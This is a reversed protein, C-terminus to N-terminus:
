AGVAERGYAALQAECAHEIANSAPIIDIDAKGGLIMRLSDAQVRAGADALREAAGNVASLSYEDMIDIAKIFEKPQTAFFREYVNRLMADAQKLCLSGKIAGPKRLLTHRYHMIDLVYSGKEYTRVHRAVERHKFTVSIDGIFALIDVTKGVLYDPVSYNSGKYSVTSYKDVKGTVRAISSYDPIKPLMAGLEKELLAAKGANQADVTSGLRRSAGACDDFTFASSFAKRRMVEVSREVHGKENGSRINCFRFGFGYYTSMQKLAETAVRENRGVFRAVAVRMNDYTMLRPVKGLYAFFRIHSDIFAQTDQTRYLLAYRINSAALTFVAMQYKVKRGDILLMVEGWDFECVEGFEYVQKVFAEKRVDSLRRVAKVVCPYSIAHGQEIIFEHIDTAKMCEKSMGNIVKRDNEDLCKQILKVVEETLVAAHRNATNYKPAEDMELIMQAKNGGAIIEAKKQEYDRLYNKVTNRSLGTERAIKKIGEGDIFHRHLVDVKKELELM